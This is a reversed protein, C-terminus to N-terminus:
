NQNVRLGGFLIEDALNRKQKLIWLVEIDSKTTSFTTQTDFLKSGPSVNLWKGDWGSGLQKCIVITMSPPSLTWPLFHHISRLFLKHIFSALGKLRIAKQTSGLRLDPYTSYSCTVLISQVQCCFRGLSNMEHWLSKPSLKKAWRLMHEPHAKTIARRGADPRRGVDKWMKLHCRRQFWQSTEM